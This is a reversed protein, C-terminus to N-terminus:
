ELDVTNFDINIKRFAAIRDFLTRAPLLSDARLHYYNGRSMAGKLTHLVHFQARLAVDLTLPQRKMDPPLSDSWVTDILKDLQGLRVYRTHPELTDACRAQRLRVLCRQYDDVWAQAVHKPKSDDRVFELGDPTHVIGIPDLMGSMLTIGLGFPHAYVTMCLVPKSTDMEDLSYYNRSIPIPPMIWSETHATHLHLIGKCPQKVLAAEFLPVVDRATADSDSEVLWRKRDTCFPLLSDSLEANGLAHDIGKLFIGHPTIRLEKDDPKSQSCATLLSLPLALLLPLLNSRPVPDFYIESV